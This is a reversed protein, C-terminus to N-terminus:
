WIVKCHFKKFLDYRNLTNVPYKVSPHRDPQSHSLVQCGVSRKAIGATFWQGCHEFYFWLLKGKGTCLCNCHKNLSLQIKNSVSQRKTLSGSMVESLCRCLTIVLAKM